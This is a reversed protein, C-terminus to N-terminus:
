TGRTTVPAMQGGSHNRYSDGPPTYIFWDVAGFAMEDGPRAAADAAIQTPLLGPSPGAVSELQYSNNIPMM